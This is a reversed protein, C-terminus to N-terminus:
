GAYFAHINEIVYNVEAHSIEPYIPLSLQRSNLQEAVPFDGVKYGLSKAAPQLHLLIPYHMKTEIGRRELYDILEDRRDCTIVFNHYVASMGDAEKPVTVIKSLETKYLEAVSQFRSTLYDFHKTKALGVACHLTDLRSNMGWFACTNRDILGHNRMQKIKEYIYPCQLTIFGGDGMVFLNKLPHLSFGAIDGLSGVKKGHLSAGIAQAADEIVFLGYKKALFNISLMDAPRGTLHVPMIAKTHASIRSEADEVSINYDEQVDCFVPKAGVQVVSGASAIFSNTPVIVEDGEGIGLVKMAIVLADTGNAVTLCHRVGCIQALADEFQEVEPGMVYQGSKVVNSIALDIEENMQQYQRELSVFPVRMTM